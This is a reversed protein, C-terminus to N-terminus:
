TQLTLCRGFNDMLIMADDYAYAFRVIGKKRRGITYVKIDLSAAIETAPLPTINGAMNRVNTLLIIM